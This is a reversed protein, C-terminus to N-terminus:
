RPRSARASSPRAPSSPSRATPTSASGRISCAARRRPQGPLKPPKPPARRRPQAEQACARPLSRSASSWRAAAPSFARRRCRPAAVSREDAPGGAPQAGASQMLEGAREVARLIRMHTGCRCLNPEHAARIEADDAGPQKAAAGARADDHRPHLLRVAGGAGRHLRAADARAERGHRPRRRDHDQPGRAAAIPTVCSFVPKGDVMVTCAGCQGLGCGFKAGNLQSITACCTSCRRRRSRRRDRADQRQRQTHDGHETRRASM